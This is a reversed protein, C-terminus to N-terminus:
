KSGCGNSPSGIFGDGSSAGLRSMPRFGLGAGGQLIAVRLHRSWMGRRLAELVECKPTKKLSRPQKAPLWLSFGCTKKRPPNELRLVRGNAVSPTVVRHAEVALRAQAAFPMYAYDIGAPWHEVFHNREVSSRVYKACDGKIEAACLSAELHTPQDVFGKCPIVM